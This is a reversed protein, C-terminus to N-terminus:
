GGKKYRKKLQELELRLLKIDLRYSSNDLAGLKLKVLREPSIVTQIWEHAEIPNKHWWFLHCGSCLPKINNLDFELKRYKGKPYIHSMQLRETTGCRLCREGDRLLVVERILKNLERKATKVSHRLSKIKQKSM